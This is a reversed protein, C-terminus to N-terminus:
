YPVSPDHLVRSVALQIKTGGPRAYDLPVVLTGCQAGFYQLTPDDCGHWTIPPPTYSSTAAPAPRTTAPAATAATTGALGAALTIAAAASAILKTRM